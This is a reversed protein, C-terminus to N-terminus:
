VLPATARARSHTTASGRGAEVVRNSALRSKQLNITLIATLAFEAGRDSEYQTCTISGWLGPRWSVPRARCPLSGGCSVLALNGNPRPPGMRLVETGQVHHGSVRGNGNVSITDYARRDISSDARIQRCAKNQMKLCDRPGSRVRGLLAVRAAFWLDFSGTLCYIQEINLNGIGDRFCDVRVRPNWPSSTGSVALVACLLQTNL